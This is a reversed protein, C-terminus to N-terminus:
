ASFRSATDKLKAAVDGENAAKVTGTMIRTGDANKPHEWAIGPISELKQRLGGNGNNGKFESGTLGRATVTVQAVNGENRSVDISIRGQNFLKGTSLTIPEPTATPKDAKVKAPAAAKQQTSAATNTKSRPSTAEQMAVCEATFSFMPKTAFWTALMGVLSIGAQGELELNLGYHTALWASAFWLAGGAIGTLGARLSAIQIREKKCKDMLLEM